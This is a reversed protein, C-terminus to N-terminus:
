SKKIALWYLQRFSVFYFMSHYNRWRITLSGLKFVVSKQKNHKKRHSATTLFVKIRNESNIWTEIKYFSSYGSYIINKKWCIFNCTILFFTVYAIMWVFSVTSMIVHAFSLPLMMHWTWCIEDEIGGFINTVPRFIYFTALLVSLCRWGILTFILKLCSIISNLDILLKLKKRFKNSLKFRTKFFM